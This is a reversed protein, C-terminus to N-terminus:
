INYLKNVGRKAKPPITCPHFSIRDLLISGVVSAIEYYIAM